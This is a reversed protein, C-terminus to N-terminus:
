SGAVKANLRSTANGAVASPLRDVLVAPLHGAAWCANQGHCQELLSLDVHLTALDAPSLSPALNDLEYPDTELDYFEREGDVYEVYLFRPTRM